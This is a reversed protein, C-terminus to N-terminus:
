YAEALGASLAFLEDGFSQDTYIAGGFEALGALDACALFDFEVSVPDFYNKSVCLCLAVSLGWEM